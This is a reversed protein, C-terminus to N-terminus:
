RGHNGVGFKITYNGNHLCSNVKRTKIGNSM